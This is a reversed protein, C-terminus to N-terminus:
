STRIHGNSHSFWCLIVACWTKIHALLFMEVWHSHTDHPPPQQQQQQKSVFRFSVFCLVTVLRNKEEEGVNAERTSKHRCRVVDGGCRFRHIIFHTIEASSIIDTWGHFHNLKISFQLTCVYCLGAWCVNASKWFFVRLVVNISYFCCCWCRLLLRMVWCRPAWDLAFLSPFLDVVLPFFSFM